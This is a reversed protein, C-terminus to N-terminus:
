SQDWRVVARVPNHDSLGGGSLVELEDVEAGWAVVHDIDMSKDSPAARPRTPLSHPAAAGWRAQPGLLEAATQRDANFDGGLIVPPRARGLEVGLEHWQGRHAAGYSLHACLVVAGGCAVALFGKGADDAFVHRGVEALPRTSVVVLHEAPSELPTPGRRPRPVRPYRLSCLAGAGGVAAALSSLQDGSVEQLLLVDATALAHMVRATIAAIRAREDPHAGIAPESWNDAHVRHLVNWTLMRLAPMAAVTCLAAGGAGARSAM